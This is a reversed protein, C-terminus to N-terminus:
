KKIFGLRGDSQGPTERSTGLPGLGNMMAALLEMRIEADVRM